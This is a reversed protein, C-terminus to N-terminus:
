QREGDGQRAAICVLFESCVAVEIYVRRGSVKRRMIGRWDGYRDQYPGDVCKGNRLVELASRMDVDLDMLSKKFTEAHMRVLEARALWRVREAWADRTPSDQWQKPFPIVAAETVCSMIDPRDAPDLSDNSM